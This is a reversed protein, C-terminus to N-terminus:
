DHCSCHKPCLFKLEGSGFGNYENRRNCCPNEDTCPQSRNSVEYTKIVTGQSHYGQSVVDVQNGLSLHLLSMTDPFKIILYKM